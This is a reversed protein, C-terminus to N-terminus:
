PKNPNLEQNTMKSDTLEHLTLHCPMYNSVVDDIQCRQTSQSSPKKIHANQTFEQNISTTINERRYINRITTSSYNSQM